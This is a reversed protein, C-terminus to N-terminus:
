IAKACAEVSKELSDRYARAQQKLPGPFGSWIALMVEPTKWETSLLQETRTCAFPGMVLRRCLFAWSAAGMLM